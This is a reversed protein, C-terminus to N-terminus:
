KLLETALQQARKRTSLFSEYQHPVYDQLRKPDLALDPNGPSVDLRLSNVEVTRAVQDQVKQTLLWNVFVRVANPHPAQKLVQISGFGISLAQPGETLLKVNAKLGQRQFYLLEDTVNGVGIPYRGRVLWEAEQRNNATVVVDQKTLLTRIFDEGYRAMLITVAGLGSGGRPDQVVIKGKWRPDVLDASSRLDSVPILDRNVLIQSGGQALFNRLFQKEKDAYSLGQAAGFWKSDDVVEPLLLLPKVPDLLGGDRAEYVQPDPGGVRLDWLHQGGRKEQSVRPWFDRSTIGTYEVKIDPYDKEFATLATRWPQSPPGSLVLRSEKRAAALTGDWEAQWAGKAIPEASPKVSGTPGCSTGVLLALLVGVCRRGKGIRM